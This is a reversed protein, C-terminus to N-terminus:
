SLCVSLCVSVKEPVNWVRQLSRMPRLSSSVVKVWAFMVPLSLSLSLCLSVSLSLSFVSLFISLALSLSLFSLSLHLSFFPARTIEDQTIHWNSKAHDCHSSIPLAIHLSLH